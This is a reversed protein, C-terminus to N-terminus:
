ASLRALWMGLLVEPAAASTKMGKEAQLLGEYRRRLSAADMGPRRVAALAKGAPFHHVGLQTALMFKDNQGASVMDAAAILMRYQKALLAVVQLPATGQELMRELMVAAAGARGDTCADVLEFVSEETTGTVLERVDNPTIVATAGTARAYASLKALEERIRWSDDGCAAVLAHAAAPQLTVGDAAAEATLSQELAAGTQAVCEETFKQQQLLPLLPSKALDKAGADEYFIVNTSEPKKPLVEALRQQDEADARLFGNLIVLKKEALFPSAYVEQLVLDMDAGKAKIVTANLGTADRQASFRERMAALKKRSRNSDEGYLLFYM